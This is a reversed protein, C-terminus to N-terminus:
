VLDRHVDAVREVLRAGGEAVVDRLVVGLEGLRHVEGVPPRDARGGVDGLPDPLEVAAAHAVEDAAEARDVLEPLDLAERAVHQRLELCLLHPSIASASATRLSAASTTSTQM